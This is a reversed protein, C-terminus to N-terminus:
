REEGPWDDPLGLVANLTLTPEIRTPTESDWVYEVAFPFVGQPLPNTAEPHHVLIWDPPQYSSSSDGFLPMNWQNRIDWANRLSRKFLVASVHARRSNKPSGFFGNLPRHADGTRTEMDVVLRERGFLASKLDEEGGLGERQALVVLYPMDLQRYAEAKRDLARAIITDDVVLQPRSYRGGISGSQSETGGEIVGFHLEWDRWKWVIPREELLQALNDAVAGRAIVSSLQKELYNKLLARPPSQSGVRRPEVMFSYRGSDFSNIVELVERERRLVGFMKDSEQAVICEAILRTHGYTASFDPTGRSITPDVVVELCCALLLEHILLELLAGSHARDDGRLRQRLHKRKDPPIKAFWRELTDRLIGVSKWSSQNFYQFSSVSYRERDEGTRKIDDFIRLESSGIIENGDM